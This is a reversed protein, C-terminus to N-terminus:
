INDAIERRGKYARSPIYSQRLLRSCRHGPLRRREFGTQTNPIALM